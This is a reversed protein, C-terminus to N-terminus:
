KIGEDDLEKDTFKRFTSFDNILIKISYIFNKFVGAKYLNLVIMGVPVAFILGMAGAVKFGVYLLFLTPIPHLGMSDGLLKPQILQRILQSIGWIILIGVTSKYDGNIFCYIAWPVMATGTGFFPLFDLLAILLAILAAYDVKLILFGIFLVVYVVAMIKFQASLYGGVANKVSSSVITLRDIMGKPMIKVFINPLYDRDAIFMYSALVTMIISIILNPIEKTFNMGASVNDATTLGNEIAKSIADTISNGLKASFVRYDPSLNIIFKMRGTVEFKQLSYVINKWMEPLMHTFGSFEEILKAVIAYIILTVIALVFVIVVVSGAKRKIKLRKELFKVIPDVIMAVIGAIIFPMFFSIAKPLVFICFLVLVLMSLINLTIKLYKKKTNM